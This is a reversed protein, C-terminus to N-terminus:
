FLFFFKLALAFCFLLIPYLTTLLTTKLSFFIFPLL